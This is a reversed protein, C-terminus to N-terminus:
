VRSSFVRNRADSHSSIEPWGVQALQEAPTDLHIPTLRSSIYRADGTGEHVVRVEPLPFRGEALGAVFGQAAAEVVAQSWSSGSSSGSVGLWIFVHTGHDLVLAVDTACVSIQHPYYECTHEGM